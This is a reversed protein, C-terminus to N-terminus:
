FWSFLLYPVLFLLVTLVALIAVYGGATAGATLWAPHDFQTLLGAAEAGDDAMDAALTAASM